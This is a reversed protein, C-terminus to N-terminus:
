NQIGQWPNIINEFWARMEDFNEGFEMNERLEPYCNLMFFEEYDQKFIRLFERKEKNIISRVKKRRERRNLEPFNEAVFKEAREKLKEQTCNYKKYDLFTRAFIYECSYCLFTNPINPNSKKLSDFAKNFDFSTFLEQYFSEFRIELDSESIEEFSGIIGRFATARNLFSSTMVFNGHCVAMTIFLENKIAKNIPAVSHYLEEWTVLEGSKLVLGDRASSGHIEFHLIPSNHNTKCDDLIEKFVKEWELKDCPTKLISQFVPHIYEQRRLLDNHLNTGTLTEGERLSEIVYIRNFQIKVM